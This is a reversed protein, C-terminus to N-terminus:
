TFLYILNFLILYIISSNKLTNYQMIKFIEHFGWFTISTILTISNKRIAANNALNALQLPSTELSTSGIGYKFTISVM